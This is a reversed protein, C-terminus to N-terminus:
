DEAMGRLQEFAGRVESGSWARGLLRSVALLAAESEGTEIGTALLKRVFATQQKESLHLEESIHALEEVDRSGFFELIAERVEERGSAARTAPAGLRAPTCPPFGGGPPGCRRAAARAASSRLRCASTPCEAPLLEREAAGALLAVLVLHEATGPQTAEIGEAADRLRPLGLQVDVEDQQWSRPPAACSASCASCWAGGRRWCGGRPRLVVDPVREPERGLLGPSSRPGGRPAPRGRGRRAAVEGALGGVDHNKVADVGPPRSGKGQVPTEDQTAKPRGRPGAHAGSASCLSFDGQPVPFHGCGSSRTQAVKWGASFSATTTTM